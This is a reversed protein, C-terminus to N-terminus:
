FKKKNKNEKLIVIKLVYIIYKVIYIKIYKFIVESIFCWFFGLFYEFMMIM